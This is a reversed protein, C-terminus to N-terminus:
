FPIDDDMDEFGSPAPKAAPRAPPASSPATTEPQSGSSEERAGVFDLRHIRGALKHGPTQDSKTFAEIHLDEITCFVQRGKTLHEALKTARDGWLGAEIWQTPQKGEANRKGYNYALSLNIVAEGSPIYRLEANRGIRFVGALITNM